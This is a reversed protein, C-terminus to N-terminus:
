SRWRKLSMVTIGLVLILVPIIVVPVYFIVRGMTKSLIVPLYDPDKARISILDEEEALWNISNLFIDKNGLVNIYSNNAFDSDGFVVMRSVTKDDNKAMEEITVVAAITLPGKSDQEKDFSAKGKDLKKKDTEGWTGENTKVLPEVRIGEKVKKIIQISRALPFFTNINFDKTIRHHEYESVIPMLYNGGFLQSLEDIIIDERFRINYGEMFTALEPVSFPDIMVLLNGGKKIYAKITKIENELLEKQPGSIIFVSADEPIDRTSLLSLEKVEYNQGQLVKKTEGYGDKYALRTIDNEGHGKLFYLVKKKDRIVRILANTIKEENGWSVRSENEKSQLIITGYDIIGYDKALAPNRDPDVLRYKFNNNRYRYLKLFGEAKKWDASNEQYFATASVETKVSNLVKLTEDSLTYRKTETLDFRFHHRMSIAGILVVIGFVILIM